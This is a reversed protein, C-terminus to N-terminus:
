VALNKRIEKTLAKIYRKHKETFEKNKPIIKEKILACVPILFGPSIELDKSVKHLSIVHAFNKQSRNCAKAALCYGFKGQWLLEGRPIYNQDILDKFDVPHRDAIASELKEFAKGMRILLLWYKRFTDLDVKGLYLKQLSDKELELAIEAPSGFKWLRPLRAVSVICSLSFRAKDITSFDFLFNMAWTALAASLEVSAMRKIFGKSTTPAKYRHEIWGVTKNIESTFFLKTWIRHTTDFFEDITIWNEHLATLLLVAALKIDSSLYEPPRGELYKKDSMIESAKEILKKARKKDAESAPTTEKKPKTPPLRKPKDGGDNDDDDDEPPTEDEPTEDEYFTYGLLRLLLQQISRIKHDPMLISPGPSISHIGYGSAFVDEETYQIEKPASDKEKQEFGFVDAYPIYQIHKCFADLIDAWAGLNWYNTIIRTRITDALSRGRATSRLEREHDIWSLNSYIASGDIQGELKVHKPHKDFKAIAKGGDLLEFDASINDVLCRTISAEKPCKYGILLDGAEYRAALIKIVGDGLLDLSPEKEDEPLEPDGEIFDFQELFLQNYEARRLTKIALLEANGSTGPITLAARSCNASGLFVRVLDGQDVAYFKAHVYSERKNGEKDEHYFKVPTIQIQKPLASAAAKNLGSRGKEILVKTEADDMLKVLEQLAEAEPDFFPACIYLNRIKKDDINEHIQKALADGAGAKGILLNPAELEATWEKTNTDFAESIEAKVSDSIPVLSVVQELYLKFASFPATGDIDSEIQAWVEANEYWGGFTLNGSGVFLIAREPGSLLVAKPHFRFGPKMLVPVVRYRLGITDLVKFQNAFSEESCQADAFVTLKPHGISKLAPLVVSQLFIFDINHTLIIANTIESAKKILKILNQKM